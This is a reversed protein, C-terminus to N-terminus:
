NFRNMTEDFPGSLVAEVASCAKSLISDLKDKEESTFRNLVYSSLDGRHTEGRIGLRLRPFADTGLHSIISKIGNHGGAGGGPRLRLKGFPLDVDDFVVLLESPPCKYFHVLPGVAEGSLNMFTQPKAIVIKEGAITGSAIDSKFKKRSFVLSNEKVFRDVVKFGLNHRTSQYEQGPNGLGVVIKM